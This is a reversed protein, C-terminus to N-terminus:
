SRKKDTTGPQSAPKHIALGKLRFDYPAPRRLLRNKIWRKTNFMWREVRNMGDGTRIRIDRNIRARIARRLYRGRGHLIKAVGGAFWPAYIRLNYEPPLVYSAVQHGHHYLVYRLAGQDHFCMLPHESRRRNEDDYRDRWLELIAKVRPTKRWALVATCPEIFSEPCEPEFCIGRDIEHTYAFDFRDLLDAIEGVPEIMFTDSDLFLSKEFPSNRVAEIKDDFHRSPDSLTTLHDFDTGAAETLEASAFLACSVGPM